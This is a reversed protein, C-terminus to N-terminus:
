DAGILWGILAPCGAIGICGCTNGGVLFLPTTAGGLGVTVFSIYGAARVFM